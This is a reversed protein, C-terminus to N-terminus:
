EDAVGGFFDLPSDFPDLGKGVSAKFRGIVRDRRDGFADPVRDLALGGRSWEVGGGDGGVGGGSKSATATGKKASFIVSSSRRARALSATSAM